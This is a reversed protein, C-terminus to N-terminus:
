YDFNKWLKPNKASVIKISGDPMGIVKAGRKFTHRFKEKPFVGHDGKVAEIAIIDSYIEIGGFCPNSKLKPKHKKKARLTKIAKHLTYDKADSKYKFPGLIKTYMPYTKKNIKLIHKTSGFVKQTKNELIGIFYRIKM